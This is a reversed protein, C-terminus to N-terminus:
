ALLERIRDQHPVWAEGVLLRNAGGFHTAKACEHPKGLTHIECREDKFFVCVGLSIPPFEAGPEVGVVAPSLVLTEGLRDVCLRTDFLEQVSLGMNAALPEIEDPMFWGPKIRCASVCHACTCSFSM